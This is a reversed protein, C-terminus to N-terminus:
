RSKKKKLKHTTGKNRRWNFAKIPWRDKRMFDLRYKLIAKDVREEFSSWGMDGRLAESAVWKSAGLGIRAM